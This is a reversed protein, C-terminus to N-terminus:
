SKKIFEASCKPCRIAVRGKGRPVRIKQRCSPCRYIHHTRCIQRDRQFTRYRSRINATAKMFRMNEDYRKRHNKSFMRFYCYVLLLMALLSIAHNNIFLSLVLLVIVVANLFKSLQDIGYRGMMFRQLKERM